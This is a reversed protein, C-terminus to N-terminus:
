QNVGSTVIVGKGPQALSGFAFDECIGVVQNPGGPIQVVKFIQGLAAEGPWLEQAFSETVITPLPVAGRDADTLQRGTLLRVGLVPLLEASGTLTGMLLQSERDGVKVTKSSRRTRAADAGIPPMGDAVGLVGPLGGLVAMVRANRAEYWATLRLPDGVPRGTSPEAVSIFVTHDIDFGAAGGFSRGVTRVFLAAVVLVITTACVQVALLKQRVRHSGFATGSLGSLLEGALRPGTSRALPVAAATTLTAATAAAAVLCARWDISPNLRGIEVGGPLSVLSVFRTGFWVLMLGGVFGFAALVSLEGALQMVLRRRGAGLSIKLALEGRRREYHMLVLAAITVCGGLLLLTTLVSALLLPNRERIVIGASDSTGFVESVPVLRANFSRLVNPALADFRETVIAATQGPGLRGFVMMFQSRGTPDVRRGVSVPIWIDARDGRRSGGFGPPAVGIIRVPLPKAPLVAGILETRRGFRRSWVDDSIIAVPEANDLDDTPAFDRGRISVRLVRFYDPTVVFTELPDGPEALEIRPLRLWPYADNRVLQGAVGGEFLQFRAHALNETAFPVGSFTVVRDPEPFPLPRIWLASVVTFLLVNGGVTVALVVAATLLYSFHSRLIRPM